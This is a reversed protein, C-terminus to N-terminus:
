SKSNENKRLKKRLIKTQLQSILTIVTELRAKYAETQITYQKEPILRKQFYDEQSRKLLNELVQKEILLLRLERHVLFSRLTNIGLFCLPIFLIFLFLISKKNFLAWALFKNTQSRLLADARTQQEQLQNLLPTIQNLIIITEEYQEKKLTYEAKYYLDRASNTNYGTIHEFEEIEVRKANLLDLCYFATEKIKDMAESYEILSTSEKDDQNALTIFEVLIDRMAYVSLGFREMELIDNKKQEIILQLTPNTGTYSPLSSLITTTNELSEQSVHLFPGQTDVIIEEQESEDGYELVTAGLADHFSIRFFYEAGIIYAFVLLLLFIIGIFMRSNTLSKKPDTTAEEKEPTM